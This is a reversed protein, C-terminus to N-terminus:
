LRNYIYSPSFLDEPAPEIWAPANGNPYNKQAWKRRAWYSKIAYGLVWGICANQEGQDGPPPFYRSLDVSLPLESPIAVTVLPISRYRNEELTQFGQGFTPASCLPFLAFAWATWTRLNHWASVRGANARSNM